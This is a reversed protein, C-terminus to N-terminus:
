AAANGELLGLEILADVWGALVVNGEEKFASSATVLEAMERFKAGYHARGPWYDHSWVENPALRGMPSQLTRRAEAVADALPRLAPVLEPSERAARIVTLVHTNMEISEASYEKALALDRQAVPILDVVRRHDIALRQESRARNIRGEYAALIAAHQAVVIPDDEVLERWRDLRSAVEHLAEAFGLQSPARLDASALSRESEVERMEQWRAALQVVLANVAVRYRESAIDALRLGTWDVYQTRAALALLEDTSSENLDPVASYLIPLILKSYGRSEAQGHFATFERRCEKRQFYRPTLMPVLFTSSDLADTIRARWDDGWRISDRDIFLDVDSGTVLEFEGRV